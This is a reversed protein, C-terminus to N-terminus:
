PLIPEIREVRSSARFIRPPFPPFGSLEEAIASAPPRRRDTATADQAM